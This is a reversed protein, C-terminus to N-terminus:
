RAEGEKLLRGLRVRGASLSAGVTGSKVDLVAAIQAYDLDGFYRLFVALREREPLQALAARVEAREQGRPLASGEIESRDELRRRRERRYSKAENLVIRWM